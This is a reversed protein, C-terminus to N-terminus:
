HYTGFHWYINMCKQWFIFSSIFSPIAKEFNFFTNSAFFIFNSALNAVNRRSVILIFNIIQISGPSIITSLADAYRVEHTSLMQNAEAFLQSDFPYMELHLVKLLTVRRRKTMSVTMFNWFYWWHFGQLHYGPSICAHLSAFTAKDQVVRAYTAEVNHLSASAMLQACAEFDEQSLIENKAM